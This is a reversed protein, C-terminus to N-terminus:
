PWKVEQKTEACELNQTGRAEATDYSGTVRKERYIKWRTVRSNVVKSDPDWICDKCSFIQNIQNIIIMRMSCTGQAIPCAIFLITLWFHWLHCLGTTYFLTVECSHPHLCQELVLMNLLAVQGSRLNLLSFYVQSLIIIVMLALILWKSKM